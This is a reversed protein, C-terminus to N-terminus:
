RHGAPPDRGRARVRAGRGGCRAGRMASRRRHRWQRGRTRTSPSCPRFGHREVSAHLDVVAAAVVCVQDSRGGRPREDITTHHGRTRVDAACPRRMGSWGSPRLRCRSRGTRSVRLVACGSRYDDRTLTPRVIVDRFVTSLCSNDSGESFHRCAGACPGDPCRRGSHVISWRDAASRANFRPRGSTGPPPRAPPTRPLCARCAVESAESAM